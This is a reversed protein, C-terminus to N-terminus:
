GNNTERRLRVLNDRWANHGVFIMRKAEFDIYNPQVKGAKRCAICLPVTVEVVQHYKGAFFDLVVALPHQSISDQAPQFNPNRCKKRVRMREKTPSGCKMCVEAHPDSGSVAVKTFQGDSKGSLLEDCSPCRGNAMPIVDTFCNQCETKMNDFPM